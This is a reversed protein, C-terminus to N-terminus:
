DTVRYILGAALEMYLSKKKEEIESAHEFVYQGVTRDLLEEDGISEMLISEMAAVRDLLKDFEDQALDLSIQKSIDWYKSQPTGGFIDSEDELLADYKSM